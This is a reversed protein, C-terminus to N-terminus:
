FTGKNRIYDSDHKKVADMKKAVDPRLIVDMKEGIRDLLSKTEHNNYDLQNDEIYDINDDDFYKKADNARKINDQILFVLKEYIIIIHLYIVDQFYQKPYLM